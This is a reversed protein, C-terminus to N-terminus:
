QDGRESEPLEAGPRGAESDSEGVEAGAADRDGGAEEGSGDVLTRILSLTRSGEEVSPDHRFRLAPTRRLDLNRALQRRLHGTASLLGEGVDEVDAEGSVDLPSWFLLAESLDPSVKVRTITLLGIRPDRTEERLLRAIEGRIQEAIRQTRISV